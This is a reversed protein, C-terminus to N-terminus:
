YLSGQGVLGVISAEAGSNVCRTLSSSRRGLVTVVLTHTGSPLSGSAPVRFPRYVGRGVPVGPCGPAACCPDIVTAPVSPLGQFTVSLQGLPLQHHMYVELKYANAARPTHLYLTSGVETAQLWVKEGGSVNQRREQWGTSSPGIRLNSRQSELCFVPVSQDASTQCWAYSTQFFKRDARSARPPLDALRKGRCMSLTESLTLANGEPVVGRGHHLEERAM